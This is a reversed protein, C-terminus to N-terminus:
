NLVNTSDTGTPGCPLGGLVGPGELSWTWGFVSKFRWFYFITVEVFTFMNDSPGIRLFLVTIILAINELLFIFWNM